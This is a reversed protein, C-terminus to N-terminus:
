DEGPTTHFNSNFHTHLLADIQQQLVLPPVKGGRGLTTLSDELPAVIMARLARERALGEALAQSQPLSWKRALYDRLRDLMLERTAAPSLRNRMFNANAKVLDLQGVSVARLRQTARQWQGSDALLYAVWFMLLFGLTAYFRSDTLLDEAEVILNLGQHADDLLVVGGQRLYIDILRVSFHRNEFRHVVDNALLSPHWLVLVEGQELPAALLAPQETDPHALLVQWDDEAPTPIDVCGSKGSIRRTPSEATLECAAMDDFWPLNWNIPKVPESAEGNAEGDVEADPQSDEEDNQEDQAALAKAQERMALREFQQERAILEWRGSDRPVSIPPLSDTLPHVVQTHLEVLDEARQNRMWRPMQEENAVVDDLDEKAEEVVDQLTDQWREDVESCVNKAVGADDVVEVCVEDQEDKPMLFRKVGLGSLRWLGLHIDGGTYVWDPGELYAAGLLLTNGKAVWGLLARIEEAEYILLAPLHVIAINGTSQAIDEPMDSFRLRQSHVEIGSRQLWTAFGAVGQGARDESNPRSIAEPSQSSPWVLWWVLLLTFLFWGLTRWRSM